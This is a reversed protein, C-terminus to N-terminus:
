RKENKVELAKGILSAACLGVSVGQRDALRILAKAVDPELRLRLAIQNDAKHKRKIGMEAKLEKIGAM